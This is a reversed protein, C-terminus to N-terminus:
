HLYNENDQWEIHSGHLVEIPLFHIPNVCACQGNDQTM